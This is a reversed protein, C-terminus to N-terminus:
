KDEGRTLVSIVCRNKVIIEINDDKITCSGCNDIIERNEKTLIRNKIDKLDIEM